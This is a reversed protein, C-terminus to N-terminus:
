DMELNNKEERLELVRAELERIEDVLAQKKNELSQLQNEGAQEISQRNFNQM